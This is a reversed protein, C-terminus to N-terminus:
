PHAGGCLERVRALTEPAKLIGAHDAGEVVVHSKAAPHHASEYSILIDRSGSMVHVDPVIPTTTRELELLKEPWAGKTAEGCRAFRAKALVSGSDLEAHEHPPMWDPGIGFLAAFGALGVGAHPSSVLLTRAVKANGGHFALYSRVVLGGMSHAVLDVKKAGTARLVDDVLSALDEGYEHAIGGYAGTDAIIGGSGLPSACAVHGSGIRGPGATYSERADDGNSVYYDFAFLWERRPIPASWSAHDKTGAWRFKDFRPDEKVLGALVTDWDSNSGRHGHVFM